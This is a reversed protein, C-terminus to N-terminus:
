WYIFVSIIHITLAALLAMTMPIHIYLWIQLLAHIQIDRKLKRVVRQKGAFTSLLDQLDATEQGGPSKALREALIEIATRQDPNATVGSKKGAIAIGSPIAVQSRDGGTLQIWWGGGVVTRSGASEVLAKVEPDVKEAIRTARQDFEAVQRFLQERTLGARNGTLLKPYRIYTYVGYFGSFIVICMLVYALTHVNWGFQFACHLTAIILLAGGLYVHSSLWGQVTGKTSNYSRKRVGFYTLLLIILAGLTGLIYGLFTGGNPPQYPEHIVYAAISALSLILALWFYRAKKFAFISQHM